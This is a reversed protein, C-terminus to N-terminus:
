RERSRSRAPVRRVLGLESLRRRLTNRNMGLLRAAKLQNGGSEHLVLELLPKEVSRITHAYFDSEQGDRLCAVVSALRDRFFDEIDSVKRSKSSPKLDDM